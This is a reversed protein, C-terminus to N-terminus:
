RAGSREVDPTAPADGQKTPAATKPKAPGVEVIENEPKYRWTYRENRRLKSGEYVKRTYSILFGS